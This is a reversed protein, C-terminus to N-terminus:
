VRSPWFTRLWFMLRIVKPMLTWLLALSMPLKLVIAVAAPPNNRSVSLMSAMGLSSNLSILCFRYGHIMRPSKEGWTTDELEARPPTFGALM